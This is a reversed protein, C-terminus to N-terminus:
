PNHDPHLLASDQAESSMENIEAPIEFMHVGSLHPRKVHSIDVNGFGRGPLDALRDQVEQVSGIKHM